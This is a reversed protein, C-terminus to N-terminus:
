LKSRTFATSFPSTSKVTPISPQNTARQSTPKPGAEDLNLRNDSNTKDFKNRITARTFLFIIRRMTRFLLLISYFIWVDSEHIM